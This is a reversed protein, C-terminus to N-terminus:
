LASASMLIQASLHRLILHFLSITACSTNHDSLIIYSGVVHIGIWNCLNRNLSTFRLPCCGCRGNIIIIDIAHLEIWHCSTRDLPMFDSGIAHLEIWHCSTRDLPMFNSGIAHLEIWHCSTQDLSMFDSGTAHLGIWHCLTRDLPMFDSGIVHLKIWHCSTRDLPMFDSGIVHFINDSLVTNSRIVYCRHDLPMFHSEIANKDWNGRWLPPIFGNDIAISPFAQLYRPSKISNGHM